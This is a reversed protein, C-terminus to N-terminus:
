RPLKVDISSDHIRRPDVFDGKGEGLNFKGNLDGVPRSQFQFQTRQAADHIIPSELINGVVRSM